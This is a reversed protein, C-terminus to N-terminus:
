DEEHGSDIPDPLGTFSLINRTAAPMANRQFEGKRPGSHLLIGLRGERVIRTNGFEALTNGSEVEAIILHSPFSQSISYQGTGQLM